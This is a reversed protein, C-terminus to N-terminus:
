GYYVLAKHWHELEWELPSIAKKLDDRIAKQYNQYNDYNSLSIKSWECGNFDAISYKQSLGNNGFKNGRVPTQKIYRILYSDLPVHFSNQNQRVFASLSEDLLNLRYILWIYKLTMNLWKQAQGLTLEASEETRKRGDRKVLKSESISEPKYISIIEKCTEKHWTDFHECVKSEDIRDSIVKTVSDRWKNREEQIACKEKESKGSDSVRFTMTRNMDLYAKNSAWTIPDDESYFGTWFAIDDSLRSEIRNTKM